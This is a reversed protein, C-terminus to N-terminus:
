NGLWTPCPEGTGGSAPRTEKTAITSDALLELPQRYTVKLEGNAWTSSSLVFDLM